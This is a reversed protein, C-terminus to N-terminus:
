DTTAVASSAVDTLKSMKRDVARDATDSGACEPEYGIARQLDDSIMAAAFAVVGFALAITTTGAIWGAWRPADAHLVVWVPWACCAHTAAFASPSIVLLAVRRWGRLRRELVILLWVGVSAVAGNVFAWWVPFGLLNYPSFGFYQGVHLIPAGLYEVFLDMAFVTAFILWLSTGRLVFRSGVYVTGGWFLSYGLILFAPQPVGLATYVVWPNDNAYWVNGLTDVISELGVSLLGSGLMILPLVDKRRVAFWLCWVAIAVFGISIVLTFIWAAGSANLGVPRQDLGPVPATLAGLALKGSM